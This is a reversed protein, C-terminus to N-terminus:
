HSDSNALMALTYQDSIAKVEEHEDPSNTFGGNYLEILDAQLLVNQKEIETNNAMLGSGPKFPHPILVLGKQEKIYEVIELASMSPVVGSGSLFLGVIHVGSSATFECGSIYHDSTFRDSFRITDHETIGLFDIGFLRRAKEVEKVTSFGDFSQETHLHLDFKM